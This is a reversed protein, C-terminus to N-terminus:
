SRGLISRSLSGGAKVGGRKDLVDASLAPAIPDHFRGTIRKSEVLLSKFCCMIRAGPEAGDEVGTSARITMLIRHATCGALERFQARPMQIGVAIEYIRRNRDVIARVGDGAPRDHIIARDNGFRLLM